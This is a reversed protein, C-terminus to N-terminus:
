LILGQEDILQKKVRQFLTTYDMAGREIEREYRKLIERAEADLRDEVQLDELIIAEIQAVWQKDHLTIAGEKQLHDVIARAMVPARTKPVRM